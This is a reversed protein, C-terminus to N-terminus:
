AVRALRVLGPFLLDNEAHMHWRMDEDLESLGALLKGVEVPLGRYRGLQLALDRIATFNVLAREHEALLTQVLPLSDANPRQAFLVHEERFMHPYANDVFTQLPEKLALLEPFRRGWRSALPALGRVLQPLVKRLYRHHWNVIHDILEELPLSRLDEPGNAVRGLTRAVVEAPVALAACAASLTRDGLKDADLGFAALGRRLWPRDAVLDRLPTNLSLGSM